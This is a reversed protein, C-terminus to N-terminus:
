QISREKMMLYETIGKRYLHPIVGVQRYGMKEYFRKAQPNFDAVVLFLKESDVIKEYFNIMREGIGKGRYAEKISIIHLYPFAHFAGNPIFWMFGVCLSNALAIFLNGSELGELIAKAASGKETFYRKGLESNVLSEECDSLYEICGKEITIDM